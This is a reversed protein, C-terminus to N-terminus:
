YRMMRGVQELRREIQRTIRALFTQTKQKHGHKTQEISMAFEQLTDCRFDIPLDKAAAADEPKTQIFVTKMGLKLGFEMDTASDGVMISKEFNIEPFDAQAQLAMGTNPKRCKPNDKALFPCYYIGDIRGGSQEIQVQMHAHVGSLQAETMLGKGIGQQNTVVVIRGFFVSFHRIAKQVGEIFEFEENDTVYAGPIRRNIVGDRDLFLTWSEDVTWGGAGLPSNVRTEGDVTWRRGDVM